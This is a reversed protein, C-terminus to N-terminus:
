FSFYSVEEKLFAVFSSQQSEAIFHTFNICSVNNNYATSMEVAYRSELQYLPSYKTFSIGEKAITFSLDFKCRLHEHSQADFKMLSQVIPAVTMLPEGSDKAQDINALNIAASHQCLTTHDVM